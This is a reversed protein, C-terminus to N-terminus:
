NTIKVRKRIVGSKVLNNLAGDNKYRFYVLLRDFDKKSLSSDHVGLEYDDGLKEILSKAFEIQKKTLSETESSQRRDGNITFEIEETYGLNKIWEVDKESLSFWEGELRKNAFYRHFAVETQHHNGTKILFVLENKFPLKVGFVNMRKEISKTKCNKFTGNMHEQVFYVYGHAKGNPFPSDIIEKLKTQDTQFLYIKQPAAASPINKETQDSSFLKKLFQQFNNKVRFIINAHNFEAPICM